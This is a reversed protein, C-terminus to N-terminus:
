ATKSARKGDLIKDYVDDLTSCADVRMLEVCPPELGFLVAEAHSRDVQPANPMLAFNDLVMGLATTPLLESKRLFDKFGSAVKRGTQEREELSYFRQQWVEPIEREGNFMAWLDWSRLPNGSDDILPTSNDLKKRLESPLGEFTKNAIDANFRDLSVWLDDKPKVKCNELQSVQSNHIKYPQRFDSWDKFDNLKLGNKQRFASVMRGFAQQPAEVLQLKYAGHVICNKADRASDASYFM